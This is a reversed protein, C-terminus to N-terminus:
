RINELITDKFGKKRQNDVLFVYKSPDHKWQSDSNLASATEHIVTQEKL